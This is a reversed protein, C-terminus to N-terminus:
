DKSEILIMKGKGITIVAEDQAIENSVGLSNGQIFTYEDLPYKMGRLTVGTVAETYPILSVYKGFAEEKKLVKRSDIMTIRNHGDILWCEAGAELPIQLLSISALTHDMRTGSAGFVHLSEAGQKLALHFALETDTENKEPPHTEWVIDPQKKFYQYDEQCVSDFDGVCYDPHINLKRASSLGGDVAIIMNYKYKKIFDFATPYDVSGGTIILCRKM